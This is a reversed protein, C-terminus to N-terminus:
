QAYIKLDWFLTTRFSSYINWKRHDKLTQELEWLKLRSLSFSFNLSGIVTLMNQM